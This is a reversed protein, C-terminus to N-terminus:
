VRNIALELKAKLMLQSDEKLDFDIDNYDKVSFTIKGLVPYIGISTRVAINNFQLEQLTKLIIEPTLEKPLEVSKKKFANTFWSM